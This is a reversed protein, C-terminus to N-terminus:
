PSEALAKGMAEVGALLTKLPRLMLTLEVLQADENVVQLLVGDAEAGGLRGAILTVTELGSTLERRVHLEELVNGVVTLLHVVDDRGAYTRVPSNFVVDDGVLGDLAAGDGTRLAEILPASRYHSV